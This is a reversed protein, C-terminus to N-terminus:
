KVQQKKLVIENLPQEMLGPIPDDALDHNTSVGEIPSSSVHKPPDVIDMLKAKFTDFQDIRDKGQAFHEEMEVLGM